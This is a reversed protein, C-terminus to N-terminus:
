INVGHRQSYVQTLEAGFFLVLASYYVWALVLVLSAAAGYVSGLLSSSLYLGIFYKGILFLIATMFAGVSVDKWSMPAAPLVRYLAAFLLTLMALSVLFNSSQLVFSPFHPTDQLYVTVVSVATSVFVSLMIFLGIGLVWFFALIRSMVVGRVGSSAEVNWIQNLASRLEGFVVTAGVLLGIVGIATGGASTMQKGSVEMASLIFRDTGPGVYDAVANAVKTQATGRGVVMGAVSVAILLAPALSFITYFALAAALRPAGDDLWAIAALKLMTAFEIATNRVAQLCHHAVKNIIDSVM